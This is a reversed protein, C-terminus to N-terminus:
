KYTSCNNVEANYFNLLIKYFKLSRRKWKIDNISSVSTVGKGSGILIIEDYEKLSKILIDKKIIKQLKSKFFKFTIGKYVKNGPSYIKNKKIFLINSTGSEFIKQNSCLGIDSNSTDMKSLYKLIVQYKLNKFEPKNRTYNILKLNFKLKSKLRKRLSISIIEDTIAVRLLHNYKKNKKIDKKLLKIINKELNFDNLKYHKLSQILNRIHKNFFLIKAPKGFIWMTTFIGNGGWLDQFSVERLDKRHYSKKSLYTVM